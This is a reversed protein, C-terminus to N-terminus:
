PPVVEVTLLIGRARLPAFLQFSLLGGKRDSRREANGKTCATEATGDCNEEKAAIGCM